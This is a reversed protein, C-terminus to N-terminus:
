GVGQQWVAMATGIILSQKGVRAQQVQITRSDSNYVNVGIAQELAPQIHAACAENVYGALIVLQPDYLNVAMAIAKGLYGIFDELLAHAYVDQVCLAQAWKNIISKHNDQDNVTQRLSSAQGQSLDMVIRDAIAPGSIFAELCGRLGCGCTPGKEDMVIHGVEGCRGTAGQLLVGDMTISCGVGDAVNIYLVNDFGAHDNYGMEALLRVRTSFLSVPCSMRQSLLAKLPINKWGMPSSLVVCGNPSITGSLAIGLGLIQSQAIHHKQLLETLHTVLEEIVQDAHQAEGLPVRLIERAEITFDFLGLTVFDPDIEVAVITRGLPNIQLIVPKPGRKHSTGETELILGKDRLRSVISSATSSGLGTMKCLETQSLSGQQRLVRLILRENREGARKSDIPRSKM